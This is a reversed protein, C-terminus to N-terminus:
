PHEKAQTHTHTYSFNMKIDKWRHMSRLLSKRRESKRVLTLMWKIEEHMSHAKCM